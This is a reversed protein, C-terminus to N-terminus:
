LPTTSISYAERRCYPTCVGYVCLFDSPKYFHSRNM